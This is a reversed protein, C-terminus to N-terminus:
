ERVTNAPGRPGRAGGRARPGQTQWRLCPSGVGYHLICPKLACSRTSHLLDLTQWHIRLPSYAKEGFPFAFCVLLVESSTLAQRTHCPGGLGRKGSLCTQRPVTATVYLVRDETSRRPLNRQTGPRNARAQSDWAVMLSRFTGMGSSKPCYSRPRLRLPNFWAVLSVLFPGTCVGTPVNLTFETGVTSQVTLGGLIQSWTPLLYAPSLRHAVLSSPLSAQSTLKALWMKAFPFLQQVCYCHM